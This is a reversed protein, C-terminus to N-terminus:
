NIGLRIKAIVVWTDFIENDILSKNEVINLAGSHLLNICTDDDQIYIHLVDNERQKYFHDLGKCYCKNVLIARKGYLKDQEAKTLKRTTYGM